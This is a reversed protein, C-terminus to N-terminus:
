RSMLLKGKEGFKSLLFHCIAKEDCTVTGKPTYPYFLVLSDDYQPNVLLFQLFAHLKALYTPVSTKESLVSTGLIPLGTETPQLNMKQLANLCCRNFEDYMRNTVIPSKIYKKEM